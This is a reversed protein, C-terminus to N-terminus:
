LTGRALIARGERPEGAGRCNDVRTGRRVARAKDGGTEASEWAKVRKGPRGPRSHGGKEGVRLGAERVFQARVTFEGSVALKVQKSANRGERIRECSVRTAGRWRGISEQTEEGKSHEGVVGRIRSGGSGSSEFVRRAGSSVLCAVRLVGRGRFIAEGGSGPPVRWFHRLVLLSGRRRSGVGTHSRGPGGRPPRKEEWSRKLQL